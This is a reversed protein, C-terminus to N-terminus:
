ALLGAKLWNGLEHGLAIPADAPGNLQHRQSQAYNSDAIFAQLKISTGAEIFEAYAGFPTQCGGDIAALAAREANVLAATPPHNLNQIAKQLDPKNGLFKENIQIALAGQGPAPLCLDPTLIQGVASEENLRKLGALALVGAALNDQMAGIKRLRTGVNGRLPLFEFDPRLLKLQAVRRLSSTGIVSGQPLDKYSKLHLFQQAFILCDWPEERETIAAVPLGPLLKTPLDKLSHVALDITGELLAAELEATFLGKDGVKHLAKDLVLDGKTEITVIETEFDKLTAKVWNAQILALKSGRTGIKIKM